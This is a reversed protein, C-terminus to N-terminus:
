DAGYDGYRIEESAIRHCRFYEMNMEMGRAKTPILYFQRFPTWREKTTVLSFKDKALNKQVDDLKFTWM